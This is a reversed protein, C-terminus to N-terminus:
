FSMEFSCALVKFIIKEDVLFCFIKFVTLALESLVLKNNNYAKLFFFFISLGKLYQGLMCMQVHNAM